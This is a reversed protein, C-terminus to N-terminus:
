TYSGFVLAVPKQGRFSSLQVRAKKDRTELSFDPASDGVQLSGRRASLWMPKFPFVMFVAMPAKAMVQGFVAPTQCMVIYFSLMVLSYVLFLVATLKILKKM